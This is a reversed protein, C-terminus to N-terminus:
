FRLRVGIRLGGGSRDHGFDGQGEAFISLGNPSVYTAGLTALGYTGAQEDEVTQQAGGSALTAREDGSFAHAAALGGTLLLVGGSELPRRASARAGIKGTLSDLDDFRITQNLVSLNDLRTRAYDLSAVPEVSFRDSGYRAGAEVRGGLTAGDLSGEYGAEPDRVDLSHWDYKILGNAFMVGRTAAVYAGLNLTELDAEHRSGDFRLDSQVYGGTLGFAVDGGRAGRHAVEAGMQGGRVTQDYDLAVTAGNVTVSSEHADDVGFVQGWIHGSTGAGAWRSLRLSTLEAGWADASSTWARQAVEGYKLSRYVPAGAESVLRFTSTAADFALGYSILGIDPNDIHFADTSSRAGVQVLSRVATGTLTANGATLNELVIGTKGTAAGAVVLRDAGDADLDLGLKANGSGVYDGPLTLVDGAVGTRLDILGQNQFQELGALSLNTPRTAKDFVVSGTNVFLDSGAGFDSGKDIVFVGSNTIRDDGDVLSVGGRIIGSSVLDLRGQTILVAHGVGADLVGANTVHIQGFPESVGGANVLDVGTAALVLGNDEGKVSGGKVVSVAIDKAEIVVADAATSTTAGRINLDVDTGAHVEIAHSQASSTDGADITAGRLADILIGVSEEGTVKVVGTAIEIANTLLPSDGYMYLHGTTVQVGHSRSGSTTIANAAIHVTADRIDPETEGYYTEPPRGFSDASVSIGVADAGSTTILGAANITSDGMTISSSIGRSGVGSTTIPGAVAINVDTITGDALIGTAYDGQTAIGGTVGINSEGIQSVSLIGVAHDGTTEISGFQAHINGEFVDIAAGTATLPGRTGGTTVIDGVNIILDNSVAHGLLGTAGDGATTITNATIEVSGYGFGLGGVGLSGAGSTSIDGAHIVMDGHGFSAAYVGASQDGRTVIQDAVISVAEQALVDIGNSRDGATELSAVKVSVDGGYSAASIGLSGFGGTSITGASVHIDGTGVASVAGSYDRRTVVQGVVINTEGGEYNTTVVGQAGIGSTKVSQATVSIDGEVSVATVATSGYGTTEVTGLDVVIDSLSGAYVGLARDGETRVSAATISSGGGESFNLAVIGHSGFGSTQVRGATVTIDPNVIDPDTVTQNTNAYIASSYDGRTVVTGVDVTVSTGVAKVGGADLDAHLGAGYTYVGDAVVTVAGQAYVTVGRGGDGGTVVYGAKVAASGYHAAAYIADSGYGWTYVGGADILIDNANTEARIGTAAEGNTTVAGTTISIDGGQDTINTNAYVGEARYGNTTVDGITVTIAGSENIAHVGAARSGGTVVSAGAGSVTIAGGSSNVVDIGDVEDDTTEVLVGDDLVVTLDQPTPDTTEYRIGDAYPSGESACIVEGSVVPGCADQALSVTPHFFLTAALAGGLATGVKLRNRSLGQRPAAATKLDSGAM